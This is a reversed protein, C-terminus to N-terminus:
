LLMAKDVHNRAYRELFWINEFGGIEVVISKFSQDM